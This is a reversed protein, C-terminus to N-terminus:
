HLCANESPPPNGISAQWAVMELHQRLVEERQESLTQYEDWAESKVGENEAEDFAEEAEHIQQAMHHLQGCAKNYYQQNDRLAQAEEASATERTALMIVTVFLMIIPVAVFAWVPNPTPKSKSTTNNLNSWNPDSPTM